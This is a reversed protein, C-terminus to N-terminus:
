TQAEPPDPIEPEDIAPEDRKAREGCLCRDGPQADAPYWHVEAGGIKRCELPEGPRGWLGDLASM